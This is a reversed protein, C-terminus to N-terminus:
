QARGRVVIWILAQMAAPEWGHMRAVERVSEALQLYETKNVSKSPHQAAKLMWTDIVVAEGDGSIARAFNNTKLGRLASFGRTRAAEANRISTRLCKVSEGSVFQRALQVNRSWTVRPSFASIISAAQEYSLSNDLLKLKACETHAFEYWRCAELQQGLNSSSAISSFLQTTSTAM